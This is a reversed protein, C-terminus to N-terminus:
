DNKKKRGRKKPETEKSKEALENKLAINKNELKAMEKGLKVLRDKYAENEDKLATIVLQKQYNEQILEENMNELNVKTEFMLRLKKFM